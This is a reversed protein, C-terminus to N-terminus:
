PQINQLTFTITRGRFTSDEVGTITNKDFDVQCELSIMIPSLGTGDSLRMTRHLYDISAMSISTVPEGDYYFSGVKAPTFDFEMNTPNTYAGLAPQLLIDINADTHDVVNHGIGTWHGAYKTRLPLRVASSKKVSFTGITGLLGSEVSGSIGDQDDRNGTLRFSSPATTTPDNRPRSYRMDLKNEDIDYAVKVFSYPGGEEDIAFSGDIVRAGTPDNEDTLTLALALPIDRITGDVLHMSGVYIGQVSTSAGLGVTAFSSAALCCGVIYAVDLVRLPRQTNM